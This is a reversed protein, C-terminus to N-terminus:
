DPKIFTAKFWKELLQKEYGLAENKYRLSGHVMFASDRINEEGQKIVTKDKAILQYNFALRPPYMSKVVRILQTNFMDIDGALDIDTFEIKLTQEEPLDKALKIIVKKLNYFVNKKFFHSNEDGSRIDSFSKPETFLVEVTAAQVQWVNFTLAALVSIITLKKMIYEQKGKIVNSCIILM